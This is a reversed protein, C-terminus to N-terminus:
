SYNRDRKRQEDRAIPFTCVCLRIYMGVRANRIQNEKPRLRFKERKVERLPARACLDYIFIPFTRTRTLSTSIGPFRGARGHREIKEERTTIRKM